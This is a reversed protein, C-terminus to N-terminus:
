TRRPDDQAQQFQEDISPRPRSAWFWVTIADGNPSGSYGSVVVNAYRARLFDDVVARAAAYQDPRYRIALRAVYRAPLSQPEVVYEDVLLDCATTDM